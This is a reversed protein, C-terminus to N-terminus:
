VLLYLGPGLGLLRLLHLLQLGQVVLMLLLHSSRAHRPRQLVGHGAKM